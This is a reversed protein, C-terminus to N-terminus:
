AKALEAAQFGSSRHSGDCFPKNKSHGCRCLAVTDKGAPIPFENGQHDLIRVAGSVLLPGNERCRIVLPESM